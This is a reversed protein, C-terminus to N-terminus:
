EKAATTASAEGSVESVVVVDGAGDETNDGDEEHIYPVVFDRVQVGEDRAQNEVEEATSGSAM